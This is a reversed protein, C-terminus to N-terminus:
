GEVPSAAQAVRLMLAAQLWPLAAVLWLYHSHYGGRPVLTILPTWVATWFQLCVVPGFRPALAGAFIGLAWTSLLLGPAHCLLVIPRPSGLSRDDRLYGAIRLQLAVFLALLALGALQFPGLPVALAAFGLHVLWSLSAHQLAASM